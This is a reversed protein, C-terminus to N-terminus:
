GRSVDVNESSGPCIIIFILIFVRCLFIEMLGEFSGDPEDHHYRIWM